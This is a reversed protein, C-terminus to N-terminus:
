YLGEPMADHLILCSLVDQADFHAELVFDGMGYIVSEGPELMADAADGGDYTLFASPEGLLALVDSRLSAGTELGYMAIRACRIASVPTDADATEAYKPIEVAFGRLEPEEFLYVKASDTYDPDALLTLRGLVDGLGDGVAAAGMAGPFRGTSLQEVLADGDAEQARSLAYVPSEEGIWAAIEFWAFHVAGSKEDFYRYREEPYYVTLGNEDFSFCNQPMPLLDAYEMYVSLGDVIEAGIIAEMHSVAAAPDDFLADFGIEGGTALDLALTRVSCGDLGDAQTGEWLLAISALKGDDYVRATQMIQAGARQSVQMAEDVGLRERILANLAAVPDEVADLATDETMQGDQAAELVAEPLELHSGGAETVDVSISVGQPLLAEAAGEEEGAACVPLALALACAALMARKLKM